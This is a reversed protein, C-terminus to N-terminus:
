EAAAGHQFFYLFTEQFELYSRITDHHSPKVRNWDWTDCKLIDTANVLVDLCGGYGIAARPSGELPNKREIKLLANLIKELKEQDSVEYTSRRQYIIAALVLLFSIVSGIHLPSKPLM